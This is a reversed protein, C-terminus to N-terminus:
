KEIKGIGAAALALSATGRRHALWAPWCQHHLWTHHAGVGFPVVTAGATEPRGCWVCQGPPSRVPNRNLWDVVCHELALAEADQRPLGQHFEAFGAREDFFALWVNPSWPRTSRGTETTDAAVRAVSAVSAVGAAAVPGDPAPTQRRSPTSSCDRAVLFSRFPKCPKTSVRSPRGTAVTAPTAVNAATAV